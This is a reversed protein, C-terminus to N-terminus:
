LIRKSAEAPQSRAEHLHVQVDASHYAAVMEAHQQRAVAADFEYNRRISKKSVSSTQLRRCRTLRPPKTIRSMSMLTANSMSCKKSLKM